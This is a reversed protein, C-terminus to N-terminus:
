GLPPGQPSCTQLEKCCCFIFFPHQLPPQTGETHYLPSFTFHTQTDPQQLSVLPVDANDGFSVCGVILRCPFPDNEKKKKKKTAALVVMLRENTASDIRSFAFSLSYSPVESKVPLRHEQHLRYQYMFAPCAQSILSTHILLMLFYLLIFVRVFM